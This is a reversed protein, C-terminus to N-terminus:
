TTYVQAKDTFFLIESHNTSEIDQVIQDGEKVKIEFNGRLSTLALKKIYGEHTLYLRTNYNPILDEEEPIEIDDPEILQTKRERGYKKAVDALQAKIKNRIRAKSGILRELDAIDKELADIDRLRKLIYDRNLHRLKIDAVNEAQLEDIDFAQM